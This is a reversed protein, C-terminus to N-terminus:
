RKIRRVMLRALEFDWASDIDVSEEFPMIIGRHDHGQLRGTREFVPRWAAYVGGNVRYVRPSEQRRSFKEAGPLLPVLRGRRILFRHLPHAEDLAVTQASDAGGKLAAVTEDIRKAPRLPTTPQLLVIIDPARFRRSYEAVAHRIVDFISARDTALMKPRMFPVEGGAARAVAAIASSDTSVWATTLLKSRRAAEITWGILPKGGLPLLNKGPLGKSGGRAPIVAFVELKPRAM